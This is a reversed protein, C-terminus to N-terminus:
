PETGGPFLAPHGTARDQKECWTDRQLDGHAPQEPLGAALNGPHLGCPALCQYTISRKATTVCPGPLPLLQQSLCGQLRTEM